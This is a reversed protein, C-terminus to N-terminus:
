RAIQESSYYNYAYQVNKGHEKIMKGIPSEPTETTLKTNIHNKTNGLVGMGIGTIIRTQAIDAVRYCQHLVVATEESRSSGDEDDENKNKKQYVAVMGVQCPVEWTVIKNTKRYKKTMSAVNANLLNNKEHVRASMRKSAISADSATPSCCQMFEADIAIQLTNYVLYCYEFGLIIVKVCM